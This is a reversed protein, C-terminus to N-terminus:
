CGRVGPRLENFAHPPRRVGSGQLSSVVRSRVYLHYDFSSPLSLPLLPAGRSSSFIGQLKPKPPTTTRTGSRAQSRREPTLPTPALEESVHPQQEKCCARRVAAFIPDPPFYVPSVHGPRHAAQLRLPSWRPGARDAKIRPIVPPSRRPPAVPRDGGERHPPFPGAPHGIRRGHLPFRRRRLGTLAAGVFPSPPPSRHPRCPVRDLVCPLPSRNNRPPMNASSNFGADTGDGLLDVRQDFTVIQTFLEDVTITSKVAGIAAVVPDYDRNLVVLVYDVMEPDSVPRGAAALEDGLNKMRAMFANCSM